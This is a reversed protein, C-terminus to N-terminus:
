KAGDLAAQVIEGMSVHRRLKRRARVLRRLIDSHTREDVPIMKRTSRKGEPKDRGDEIRKIEERSM